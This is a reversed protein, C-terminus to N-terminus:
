ICEWLDEIKTTQSTKCINNTVLLSRIALYLNIKEKMLAGMLKCLKTLTNPYTYAITMRPATLFLECQKLQANQLLTKKTNKIKKNLSCSDFGIDKWLFSDSFNNNEFFLHLFM